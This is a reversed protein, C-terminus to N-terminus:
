LRNLPIAAAMARDGADNPHLHDGSDYAPLMRTPHAPDRTAADFDVVADFEDSTRIWRNVAQRVAELEPTYSYWGEWPMITAGVVTLGRNDAQVLVQRMGAIIKKPDTQHPTQQIDNIGEFLIVTRAGPQEMVDPGFRSLASPGAGRYITYNPYGDDLLIRNGSIGANAVGYKPVKNQNALRNALYDTWRRNAGWTSTVGDTISDGLAVITGPGNAVDVGSVIHWVRTTQPFSTASVDTSHDVRDNNFFSDQM